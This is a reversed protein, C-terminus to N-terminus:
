IGVKEFDLLGNDKILSERRKLEEKVEGLTFLGYVMFIHNESIEGSQLGDSLNKIENM